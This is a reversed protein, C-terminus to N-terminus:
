IPAFCFTESPPTMKFILFRKICHSIRVGKVKKVDMSDIAIANSTIDGAPEPASSTSGNAKIMPTIIM